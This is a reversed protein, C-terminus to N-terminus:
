SPQGSACARRGRAGVRARPPPDDVDDRARRSADSGISASIVLWRVCLMCYAGGRDSSYLVHCRRYARTSFM